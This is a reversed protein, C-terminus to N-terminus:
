GPCHFISDPRHLLLAFNLYISPDVVDQDTFRILTVRLKSSVQKFLRSALSEPSYFRGHEQYYRCVPRLEGELDYNSVQEVSVITPDFFVRHTAGIYLPLILCAGIPSLVREVEALFEIDASGYFHEFSCHLTLVDFFGPEIFQMAQALGGIIKRSMDTEYLMDQKWYEIQPWEALLAHEIPSTAAAVDCYRRVRSFNLLKFTLAHELAKERGQGIYTYHKGYNQWYLGGGSMDLQASLSVVYQAVGCKEAVQKLQVWLNDPSVGATILECPIIPRELHNQLKKIAQHFRFAYLNHRFWRVIPTAPIKLIQITQEISM